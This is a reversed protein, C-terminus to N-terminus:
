MFKRMAMNTVIGYGIIAVAFICCTITTVIEPGAMHTNALNIIGGVMVMIGALLVKSFLFKVFGEKDKIDKEDTGKKLLVNGIIRGKTKLVVATYVLYAGCLICLIDIFDYM